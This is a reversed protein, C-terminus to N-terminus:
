KKKATKKKAAKKKTAMINEKRLSQNTLLINVYSSASAFFKQFIKKHSPNQFHLKEDSFM